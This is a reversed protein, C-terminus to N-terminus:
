KGKNAELLKEIDSRYYYVSGEICTPILIGKQKWRHLTSLDKKLEKSAEERTLLETQKPAQIKENILNEFYQFKEEMREILEIPDYGIGLIQGSTTQKTM